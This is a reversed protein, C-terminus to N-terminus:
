TETLLSTARHGKINFCVIIAFMSYTFIGVGGQYPGYHLLFEVDVPHEYREYVLMLIDPDIEQPGPGVASEM